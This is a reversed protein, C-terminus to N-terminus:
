VHILRIIKVRSSICGVILIRRKWLCCASIAIWRGVLRYCFVEALSFVNSFFTLEGFDPRTNLQGVRVIYWPIPLNNILQNFEPYDSWVHVDLPRSNNIDKSTSLYNNMPPYEELYM